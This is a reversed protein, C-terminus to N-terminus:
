VDTPRAEVYKLVLTASGATFAATDYTFTIYSDVTVTTGILAGDSIISTNATLAGVAIAADIGDDAITTGDAQKTGIDLVATAGAFADKVLLVADKIHAGAPIFGDHGDSPATDTDGITTADALKYTLVKEEAATVGSPKVESRANGFKVNLGDENLWTTM